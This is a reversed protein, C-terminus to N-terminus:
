VAKEGCPSGDIQEWNNYLDQPSVDSTYGVDFGESECYTRLIATINSSIYKHKSRVVDGVHNPCEEPTWPRYKTEGKGAREVPQIDARATGEAASLLSRMARHQQNTLEAPTMERVAFVEKDVPSTECTEM